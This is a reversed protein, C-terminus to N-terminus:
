SKTSESISSTEGNFGYDSDPATLIDPVLEKSGIVM